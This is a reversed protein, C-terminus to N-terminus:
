FYVWCHRFKHTKRYHIDLKQNRNASVRCPVCKYPVQCKINISRLSSAAFQARTEIKYNNWLSLWEDLLYFSNMTMKPSRRLTLNKRHSSFYFISKRPRHRPILGMRPKQWLVLKSENNHYGLEKCLWNVMLSKDRM